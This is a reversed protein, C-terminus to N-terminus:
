IMSEHHKILLLNNKTLKRDNQLSIMIKQFRNSIKILIKMKFIIKQKENERRRSRIEKM